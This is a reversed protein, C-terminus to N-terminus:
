LLFFRIWLIKVSFKIFKTIQKPSITDEYRIDSFIDQLKFHNKRLFQKGKDLYHNYIKGLFYSEKEDKKEDFM